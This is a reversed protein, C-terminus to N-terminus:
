AKEEAFLQTIAKCAPHSCQEYREATSYIVPGRHARRHMDQAKYAFHKRELHRGATVRGMQAVADELHWGKPLAALLMPAVDEVGISGQERTSVEGPGLVAVLAEALVKEAEMEEVMRAYGEETNTCIWGESTRHCPM